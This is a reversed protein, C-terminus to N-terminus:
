HHTEPAFASAVLASSSLSIAWSECPLLPFSVGALQRGVEAHVCLYICIYNFFALCFACVPPRESQIFPEPSLGNGQPRSCTQLLQGEM